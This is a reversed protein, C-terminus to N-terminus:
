RAKKRNQEKMKRERMEVKKKAQNMKIDFWWGGKNSKKEREIEFLKEENQIKELPKGLFPLVKNDNKM